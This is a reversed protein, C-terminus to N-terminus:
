YHIFDRDKGTKGLLRHIRRRLINPISSKVLKFFRKQKTREPIQGKIEAAKTGESPMYKFVYITDFFVKRLLQMSKRFDEETETPFGAMVETELKVRPYNWSLDRATKEFQEAGYRRRMKRLIKNSGSQVPIMIQSIKGSSFFPKMEDHNRVLFSPNVNRLNLSYDGENKTISDLLEILSYGRDTGYSGLCTGLLNFDRFGLKLGKKFESEIREISKSKTKGRAIKIACFTCNYQCGTSAEIYFSRDRGKKIFSPFHVATFDSNRHIPLHSFAKQIKKYGKSTTFRPLLKNVQVEEIKTNTKSGILKYLLEIDREDFLVGDYLNRMAQPNIKTMCGWPIFVADKKMRSKIFHITELTSKEMSKTFGCTRFLILDIKALDDNIKYGNKRLFTQVRAAEIRSEICGRVLVNATKTNSSPKNGFDRFM